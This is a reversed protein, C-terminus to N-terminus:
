YATHLDQRENKFIQSRRTKRKERKISDNATTQQLAWTENAPHVNVNRFGRRSRTRIPPVRKLTEIESSPVKRETQRKQTQDIAQPDQKKQVQYGKVRLTSRAQM